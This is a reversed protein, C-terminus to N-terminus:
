FFPDGWFSHSKLHYGHIGPHFHQYRTGYGYIKDAVALRDLHKRSWAEKAIKEANSSNKTYTSLTNKYIKNNIYM